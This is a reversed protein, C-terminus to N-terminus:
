TWLYTGLAQRKIQTVIERLEEAKVKDSGSKHNREELSILLIFLRSLVLIKEPKM